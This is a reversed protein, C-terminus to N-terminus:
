NHIIRSIGLYNSIREMKMVIEIKIKIKRGLEIGIDIGSVKIQSLMSRKHCMPRVASM